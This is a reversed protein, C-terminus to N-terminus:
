NSKGELKTAVVILNAAAILLAFFAFIGWSRQATRTKRGQNGVETELARLRAETGDERQGVPADTVPDHAKGNTSTTTAPM